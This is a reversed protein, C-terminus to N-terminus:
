ALVTRRSLLRHVGMSSQAWMSCHHVQTGCSLGLSALFCSYEELLACVCFICLAIIVWSCGTLIVQDLFLICDAGLTERCM